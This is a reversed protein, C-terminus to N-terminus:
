VSFHVQVCELVYMYAHKKDIDRYISFIYIWIAHQSSHEAMMFVLITSHGAPTDVCLLKMM